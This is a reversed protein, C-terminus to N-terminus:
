DSYADAKVFFTERQYLEDGIIIPEVQSQQDFGISIWNGTDHFNDVMVDTILKEIADLRDESDDAGWSAGDSHLVFSYIYLLIDTNVVSVETAKDRDSGRSAVVVVPSAGDFDDSKYNLVEEVIGSGSAVLTADLLAALRKRVQARDVVNSAM